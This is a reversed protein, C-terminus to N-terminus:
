GLATRAQFRPHVAHRSRRVAELIEDLDARRRYDPDVWRAKVLGDSGIVFTAPIPLMWTENGQHQAIDFGGAKMAERKEDGVWFLLNLQLAYGGDVDALVPFPAKAYAKLEVGFRHTEPSIAVISGGLEFVEEAISALGDSNLRCYPCWHGRHFAVVVPGQKILDDLCVLRGQEDPLIFVPMPEGVAPANQGVGARELRAVMHDVVDAFEPSLRRVEDAVAKLRMGLPADMERSDNTIDELLESFTKESMAFRDTM